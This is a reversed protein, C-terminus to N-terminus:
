VLEVPASKDSGGTDRDRAIGFVAPEVQAGVARHDVILFRDPQKHGRGALMSAHVHLLIKFLSFRTGDYQADALIGQQKERGAIRDLETIGFEVVAAADASTGEIEDFSFNGPQRKWRM